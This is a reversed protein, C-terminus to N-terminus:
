ELLKWPERLFLLCLEKINSHNPPFVLFNRPPTYVWGVNQKTQKRLKEKNEKMSTNYAHKNQTNQLRDHPRPIHHKWSARLSSQTKKASFLSQDGNSWNWCSRKEEENDRWKFECTGRNSIFDHTNTHWILGRPGLLAGDTRAETMLEQRSMRVWLRPGPTHIPGIILYWLINLKFAVAHTVRWQSQGEDAWHWVPVRLKPREAPKVTQTITKKKPPPNARNRLRTKISVSM